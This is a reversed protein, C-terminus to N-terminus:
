QRGKSLFYEYNVVEADQLQYRTIADKLLSDRIILVVKTLPSKLKVYALISSLDPELGKGDMELKGIEDIVLWEPQNVMEAKLITIAKAFSSKLFTFKGIKVTLNPDTEDTEFDHIKKGKIDYLMRKGSIDPTLIGTVNKDTNAWIMVTSTKGVKIPDSYIIINSM